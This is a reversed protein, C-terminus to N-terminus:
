KEMQVCYAELSEDVSIQKYLATYANNNYRYADLDGLALYAVAAENRVDLLIYYDTDFGESFWALEAANGEGSLSLMPTQKGTCKEYHKNLSFLASDAWVVAEQYNGELNAHYIKNAYDNAKQLLSDSVETTVQGSISLCSVHFLLVMGLLKRVGKPLRFYFRSGKGLESEILFSCVKFM